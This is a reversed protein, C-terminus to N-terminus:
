QNIKHLNKETYLIQHFLHEIGFKDILVFLILLFVHYQTPHNLPNLYRQM